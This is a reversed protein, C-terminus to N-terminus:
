SLLPLSLRSALERALKDAKAHTGAVFVHVRDGNKLVLFVDYCLHVQSEGWRLKGWRSIEIAGVGSLLCSHTEGKGFWGLLPNYVRYTGQGFHILVRQLYLVGLRLLVLGVATGLIVEWLPLKGFGLLPYLAFM